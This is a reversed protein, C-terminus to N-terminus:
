YQALSGERKVRRVAVAFGVGATPLLLLAALWLLAIPVIAALPGAGALGLRVGSLAHSLPLLAAAPQLWGPLLRTPFLTGGLIGSIAVYGVIVPDGQKFVLVFGASLLGLAAFVLCGPVFVLFVTIPDASHWYGFMFVAVALFITLRLFSQLFRFVVSAVIFSSVRVPTLLIPELTGSLQAERLAQPFATLGTTFADTFALGALVFAIYNTGGELGAHDAGVARGVFYTLAIAVVIGGLQWVVALRYSSWILWDRRTFAKLTNM